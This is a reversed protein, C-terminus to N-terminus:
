SEIIVAFIAAVVRKEVEVDWWLYEIEICRADVKPELFKHCSDDEAVVRLLDGSM